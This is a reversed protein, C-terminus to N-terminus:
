AEVLLKLARLRALDAPEDVDWLTEFERMRLGCSRARARTRSMVDPTGWHMSEFLEPRPQRLGVMAYGGDEAPYFVADVGDNLARAAKRLHAAQLAPCDTGILLLPGLACHARFAFLMRDGLDGAPQSMCSVGTARELARFFRHRADPACWLTVPGLRAAGATELAIRTLRRQLRAAGHAGLAPILRTKALGPVPAKALVAIQVRRLAGEPSVLAIAM